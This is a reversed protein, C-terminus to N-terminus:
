YANSFAGIRGIERLAIDCKIYEGDAPHWPTIGNPEIEYIIGYTEELLTLEAEYGTDGAMTELIAEIDADAMAENIVIYNGISARPQREFNYGYRLWARSLGDPITNNIADDTVTAGTGVKVWVGSDGNPNGTCKAAWCVKDGASWTTGIKSAVTAGGNTISFAFQNTTYFWYVRVMNFVDHFHRSVDLFTAFMDYDGHDIDPTFSGIMTFGTTPLAEPLDYIADDHPGGDTSALNPIRVVMVDDVLWDAAGGDARIMLGRNGGARFIGSHFTYAVGDIGSVIDDGSVDEEMTVAGSAVKFYAGVLYWKDTEFPAAPTDIGQGSANVGVGQAYDGSHSDDDQWLEDNAPAINREDWDPAVAFHVACANGNVPPGNIWADVTIQDAGDNVNNIRGYAGGSEAAYEGVVALSLDWAAADSVVNGAYTTTAANSTTVAALEAEYMDDADAAMGGNVASNQYIEIRDILGESDTAGTQVVRLQIEKQGAGGSVQVTYRLWTYDDGPAIGGSAQWNETLDNAAETVNWLNLLFNGRDLRVRALIAFETAEPVEGISLSWGDAADDTIFRVAQIGTENDTKTKELLEIDAVTSYSGVGSDSQDGDPVLNNSVSTRNAYTYDSTNTLVADAVTTQSLDLYNGASNVADVRAIENVNTDLERTQVMVLQGVWFVDADWRPDLYFRTISGVDAADRDIYARYEFSPFHADNIVDGVNIQEGKWGDTYLPVHFGAPLGTIPHFRTSYREFDVASRKDAILFDQLPDEGPAPKGLPLVTNVTDAPWLPSLALPEGQDRWSQIHHWNEQSVNVGRLVMRRNFRSVEGREQGFYNVHKGGGAPTANAEWARVREPATLDKSLEISRSRRAGPLTNLKFSTVGM